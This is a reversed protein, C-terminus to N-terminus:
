KDFNPPKRLSANGPIGEDEGSEARPQMTVPKDTKTVTPEGPGGCGASFGLLSLGLTIMVVKKLM